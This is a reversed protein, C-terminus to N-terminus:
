KSVERRYLEFAASLVDSGESMNHIIEDLETAKNGNLTARFGHLAVIGKTVSLLGEYMKVELSEKCM